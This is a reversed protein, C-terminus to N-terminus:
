HLEKIEGDRIRRQAEQAAAVADSWCDAMGKWVFTHMDAHLFGVGYMGTQEDYHALGPLGFLAHAAALAELRTM